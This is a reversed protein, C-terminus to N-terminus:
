QLRLLLRLVSEDERRVTWVDIQLMRRPRLVRQPMPRRQRVRLRHVLRWLVRRVDRLQREEEESLARLVSQLM